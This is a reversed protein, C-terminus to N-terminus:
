QSCDPAKFGLLKASQQVQDLLDSVLQEPTSSAASDTSAIPTQGDPPLLNEVQYKAVLLSTAQSLDKNQVQAALQHLFLHSKDYFAARAAPQNGQQLLSRVECLGAVATDLSPQTVSGFSGSSVAAATDSGNGQTAQTIVLGAVVAVVLVVAGLLVKGRTTRLTLGSHQQM